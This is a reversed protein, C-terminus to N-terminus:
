DQLPSIQFPPILTPIPVEIVVPQKAELAQRLASGLGEPNAKLGKAGFLEALKAFDPNNLETGLIRGQFNIQQDSKTSGFADDTFIVTILNIGYRVATALEACAYMFGGDGAVCVVQKDPAAVKAGLATPFAYGLTAFYSSTFYTRPRRVPYALNCWYGINTVGTVLVADERLENRLTAIIECQVPAKRRLWNKHNGRFQRLDQAPWREKMIEKGRVEDALAQLTIKADAAIAVEAPFNKGIVSPDADVHILMQPDKLATGPRMQSTLRTGIALVVDAQPAAWRAAGFGYYAGGLSLPHDESIAGKGEPTTAVPAGLAESLETLESSANSLIVGGGAWILPKKASALLDAARRVDERGPKVQPYQEEPLLVVEAEAGMVDWPIEVETPRARGTSMQRMAEQIAGPIDEVRMLRRCWKTVPRVIDLQDNIEHLAGRDKGLNYSEVQGAILLVPSSCAYATGLAASANQLGPGPVVLGVGPKGKVRAYGDAMYVVSQEHRVTILRIKPEGYLADFIHMIQVGPLGFIFEVGEQKLSEVVAKGGTMRPM